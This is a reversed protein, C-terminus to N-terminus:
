AQVRSKPIRGVGFRANFGSNERLMAAYERRFQARKGQRTAHSLHIRVERGLRIRIMLRRAIGAAAVEAILREKGETTNLDYRLAHADTYFRKAKAHDWARDWLGSDMADQWNIGMQQLAADMSVNADCYDHSCCVSPDREMANGAIVRGMKYPGLETFLQRAFAQAVADILTEEIM